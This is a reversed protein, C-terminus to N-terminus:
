ENRTFPALAKIVTVTVDEEDQYGILLVQDDKVFNSLLTEGGESDQYETQRTLDVTMIKEQSRPQFDLSGTKIDKIAGLHVVHPDPLPSKSLFNIKKPVFADKEALGLVVAWNDIEIDNPEIVADDEMLAVTEDLAIIRTAGRSELTVTEESVRVVQGVFGRRPDTIEGLASQVNEKQQEVIQEIRERLSNTTENTTEEQNEEGEEQAQLTPAVLVGVTLLIALLGLKIFDTSNIKKM